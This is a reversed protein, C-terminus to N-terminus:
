QKSIIMFPFFVRITIANMRTISTKYAHLANRFCGVCDCFWTGEVPEKVGVLENVEVVEFVAVVGLLVGV